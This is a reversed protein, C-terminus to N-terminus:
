DSFGDRLSANRAATVLEVDDPFVIQKFFTPDEVFKQVPYGFVQELSASKYILRHDPLSISM